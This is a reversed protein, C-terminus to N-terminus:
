STISRKTAPNLTEELTKDFKTTQLSLTSHMDYKEWYGGM